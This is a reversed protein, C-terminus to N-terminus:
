IGLRAIRQDAQLPSALILDLFNAGLSWDRRIAVSTRAPDPTGYWGFAGLRREARPKASVLTFETINPSEGGAFCRDAAITAARTRPLMVCRWARPEQCDRAIFAANAASM